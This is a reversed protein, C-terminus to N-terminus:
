PPIETYGSHSYVAPFRARLMALDDDPLTRMISIKSVKMDPFSTYLDEAKEIFNDQGMFGQGHM